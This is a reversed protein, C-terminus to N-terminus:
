ATDLNICLSHAVARSTEWRFFADVVRSTFSNGPLVSSLDESSLRRVPRGAAVVATTAAM